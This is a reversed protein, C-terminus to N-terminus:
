KAPKERVPEGKGDLVVGLALYFVDGQKSRWRGVVPMDKVLGEVRTKTVQLLESVSKGTEKENDIVLVTKEKVEETHCVQVGQKEAAVSALAKVRCVREARLRDKATNDKLVTSAVALVVQRGGKLRIVKAGAVEMLLRNASLYADFPKEIEVDAFDEGAQPGGAVALVSLLLLGTM